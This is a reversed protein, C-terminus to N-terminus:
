ILQHVLDDLDRELKDIRKQVMRRIWKIFFLIISLLLLFLISLIITGFEKIATIATIRNNKSDSLIDKLSNRITFNYTSVLQKTMNKISWPITSLQEHNGTATQKILISRNTCTSSPLETNTCKITNGCPMRVISPENIMIIENLHGIDSHIYCYVPDGTHFFLWVNSDINIIDTQIARSRTIQCSSAIRTNYSFLESLCPSNFLKISPPKKQCYVYISFLCENKKPTDYWLMVTEDDTDVAIVEPMNSYVFQEDNVITPLPIFRYISFSGSNEISPRLFLTSILLCPQSIPINEQRVPCSHVVYVSQAAILQSFLNLSEALDTIQYSKDILSLSASLLPMLETNTLFDFGIKDNIIQRLIISSASSSIYPINSQNNDVLTNTSNLLSNEINNTSYLRNDIYHVISNTKTIFADRLHHIQFIRNIDDLILNSVQNRDYRPLATLADRSSLITSLEVMNAENTHMPKSILQCIDASPSNICFNNLPLVSYIIEEKLKSSYPGIYQLMFAKDTDIIVDSAPINLPSLFKITEILNIASFLLILKVSATM